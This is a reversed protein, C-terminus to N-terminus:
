TSSSRPDHEFVCGAAQLDKGCRVLVRAKQLDELKLTLFPRAVLAPARAGDHSSRVNQSAVSPGTEDLLGAGEPEDRRCRDGQAQPCSDHAGEVDKPGSGPCHRGLVHVRDLGQRVDGRDAEHLLPECPLRAHHGLLKLIGKVRPDGDLLGLPEHRGLRM